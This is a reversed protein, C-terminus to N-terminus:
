DHVEPAAGSLPNAGPGSARFCGFYAVPKGNDRRTSESVGSRGRQEVVVDLLTSCPLVYSLDKQINKHDQM